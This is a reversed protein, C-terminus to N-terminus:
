SPTDYGAHRFALPFSSRQQRLSFSFPKAGEVVQRHAQVCARDRPALGYLEGAGGDRCGRQAEEGRPTGLALLFTFYPDRDGPTAAM